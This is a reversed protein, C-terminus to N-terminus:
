HDATMIYSRYAATSQGNTRRSCSGVSSTLRAKPTKGTRAVKLFVRVQLNPVEDMRRGLEAFVQKGQVIEHGAVLFSREARRM